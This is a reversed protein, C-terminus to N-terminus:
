PTTTRLMRFEVTAASGPQVAVPTETAFFVEGQPTSLTVGLGYRGGERLRAPDYPLAFDYPPGSLPTFSAAAVVAGPAGAAADRDLLRVELVSDSPMLMKEYYTARGRIMAHEAAALGANTAPPPPSQCGTPALLLCCALVAPRAPM